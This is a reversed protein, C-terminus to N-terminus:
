IDRHTLQHNFDWQIYVGYKLKKKTTLNLIKLKKPM